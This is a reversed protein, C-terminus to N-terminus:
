LKEGVRLRASRSAPNRKVEETSPRGAGRFVLRLSPEKGCVCVPLEPPCTCGNCLERFTRKVIRDELSHYALVAIRGGPRLADVAMRIFTGLGELERNVFIRLAQFTRTAPHLRRGPKKPVVGAVISALTAADKIPAESRAACIAAAIRRAHPEEGYKWLVEKLREESAGSLFESAPQGVGIDMRMDLSSDDSFSFGRGAKLQYTSLGLDALIGVPAEPLADSWREVEKFDAHVAMFRGGFASLRAQAIALAENDRDIGLVSAGSNSELLALSHGGMGLTCDVFWGELKTELGEVVERVM